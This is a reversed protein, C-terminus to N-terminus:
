NQINPQIYKLLTEFEEPTVIRTGLEKADREKNGSYSGDSVLFKTKKSVSSSVFLGSISCLNETKYRWDPDCGTFVIKDGIRLPDGLNWDSPLNEIKKALKSHHIEKGSLIFEKLDKESFGLIEVVKLLETKENTDIREDKNALVSMAILFDKNLSTLESETLEYIKALGFLEQREEPSIESDILIEALKELYQLERDLYTKNLIKTFDEKQLKESLSKRSKSVPVARRTSNNKSSKTSYTPGLYKSIEIQGPNNLIRLDSLRPEPDKGLTMFYSFLKSTATADGKASHKNEIDIGLFECCDSLRRRGLDPLYYRSAEFTCISPLYSLNIGVRNFESRLFSLDFRANHAIIAYGDIKELIENHLDKFTPEGIVDEQSIGHIETPGVPGEPNILKVWSDIIKYGDSRVLALEVIRNEEPSLGSTEVDLVVFQLGRPFGQDSITYKKVKDLLGM